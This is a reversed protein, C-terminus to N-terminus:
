DKPSSLSEQNDIQKTRSLRHVHSVIWGEEKCVVGSSVGRHHVRDSYIREGYLEQLRGLCIRENRVTRISLAYRAVPAAGESGIQRKKLPVHAEKKRCVIVADHLVLWDMGIIVDFTGLEIPMLDIKFLHNVLNLACGRLITNTSVVRGDALEVEYSHDVKVPKGGPNNKAPCNAKIHGKERCGYCTMIPQANAGTAVVKSWCERAKRGIKGCKNCKIPCNGYHQM